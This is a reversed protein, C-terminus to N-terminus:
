IEPLKVKESRGKRECPKRGTAAQFVTVHLSTGLPNRLAIELLQVAKAM